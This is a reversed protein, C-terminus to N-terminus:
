SKIDSRMRRPAQSFVPSPEAMDDQLFDAAEPDLSGLKVMLDKVKM